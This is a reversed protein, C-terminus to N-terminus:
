GGADISDDLGPPYDRCKVVLSPDEWCIDVFRCSESHCDVPVVIEAKKGQGPAILARIEPEKVYNQEGPPVYIYTDEPGLLHLYYHTNNRVEITCECGITYCGM